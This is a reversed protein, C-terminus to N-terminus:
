TNTQNETINQEKEKHILNGDKFFHYIFGIATVVLFIITIQVFKEYFNERTLYYFVLYMFYFVFITILSKKKM